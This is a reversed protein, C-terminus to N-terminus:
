IIKFKIAICGYKEIEEPTYYSFQEIFEEINKYVNSIDKEFNDKAMSLLDPYNKIEKVFVQITEKEEPRKYFTIIDNIKIKQRKKDNLRYEIEKKGKKIMEFPQTNLRM